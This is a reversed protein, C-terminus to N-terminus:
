ARNIMARLPYTDQFTKTRAECEYTGVVVKRRWPRVSRAGWFTKQLSTGLIRWTITEPMGKKQSWPTKQSAGSGERLIQRIQTGGLRREDAVLDVDPARQPGQPGGEGPSSRAERAPRRPPPGETARRRDLLRPPLPVRLPAVVATPTRGPRWHALGIELGPQRPRFGPQHGQLPGLRLGPRLRPAAHGLRLYTRAMKPKQKLKNGGSTNSAKREPQECLKLGGKILGGTRKGPRGLLPLGVM